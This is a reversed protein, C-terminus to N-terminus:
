GSPAQASPGAELDLLRNLARDVEAIEPHSRRYHTYSVEQFGAAQMQAEEHLRRLEPHRVRWEGRMQNIVLESDSGVRVRNRTYAHCANLGSILAAYEAQNNTRNGLSEAHEFLVEGGSRLIRFGAAAPGPNGRAAGDTYLLVEDLIEAPVV